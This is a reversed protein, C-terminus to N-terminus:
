IGAISESLRLSILTCGAKEGPSPTGKPHGGCGKGGRLRRMGLLMHKEMEIPVSVDGM